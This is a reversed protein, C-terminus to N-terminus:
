QGQGDSPKENGALNILTISTKHQKRNSHVPTQDNAEILRVKRNQSAKEVLRLLNEASTEELIYTNTFFLGIKDDRQIPAFCGYAVPPVRSNIPFALDPVSTVTDILLAFAIALSPKRAELSLM